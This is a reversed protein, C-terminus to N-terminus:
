CGPNEHCCLLYPGSSFSPHGCFCSSFPPWRLEGCSYLPLLVSPSGSFYMKYMHIINILLVNKFIIGIWTITMLNYFALDLLHNMIKKLKLPFSKDKHIDVLWDDCPSGAGSFWGWCGVVGLCGGGREDSVLWSSSSSCGVRVLVSSIHGDAKETSTPKSACVLGNETGALTRQPLWRTSISLSSARRLLRGEIHLRYHIYSLM